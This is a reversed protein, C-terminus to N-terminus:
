VDDRSPLLLWYREVAEARGLRAAHRSVLTAHHAATGFPSGQPLRECVAELVELTNAPVDELVPQLRLGFAKLPQWARSERWQRAARWGCRLGDWADSLHHRVHADALFGLLFRALGGTDQSANTAPPLRAGLQALRIRVASPRLALPREEYFFVDREAGVEFAASAAEHVLRHDIHGLVGLPAFVQRPQVRRSLEALLEVVRSMMEDDEPQRGFLVSEGRAHGPSRRRAEPLRLALHEVGIGAASTVIPESADADRDFVTAVLIRDGEQLHTLLGGACSLLATHPWPSLYLVEHRDLRGLDDVTLSASV